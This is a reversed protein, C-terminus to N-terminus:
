SRIGSPARFLEIMAAYGEGGHGDAVARRALDRVFGPLEASIGLAESEHVVHEMTALHTDLTSDLVPYAGDDIQEAYGPLWDAVTAVGRAALPAFASADVGAAGLLAAGQLFGNLVSWMLSLVATEHLAALGPDEGLYSTNATLSSLAPEHRDFAERSGSHVIVAEATGIADPVAMIAGDLYDAGGRRAWAATLRAQASTSSTLNVLTRGELVGDLPDLLAHVAEHDSVCVVVVPSAAVAEGVSAAPKAGRATLDEARAATRNWVTTPHGRRLFADALARGMMGLGLVTVPTPSADHDHTTHEKHLPHNSM